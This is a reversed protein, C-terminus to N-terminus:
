GRRDPDGVVPRVRLGAPREGRARALGHRRGRQHLGLRLLVGLLLASFVALGVSWWTLGIISSVFAAILVGAVVAAVRRAASVLSRHVTAQSVLLATLPALVPASEGTLPLSVVYALTAAVAIRLSRWGPPLRHGHWEPRSGRAPLLAPRRMSCSRGRAGAVTFGQLGM